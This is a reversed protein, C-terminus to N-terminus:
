PSAQELQGLTVEYHDIRVSNRSLEDAIERDDKGAHEPMSRINDYLASGSGELPRFTYKGTGCLPCSWNEPLEEFSTNPPINGVKDGREPKYIYGCYDM